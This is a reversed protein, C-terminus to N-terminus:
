SAVEQHAMAPVPFWGAIRRTAAFAAWAVTQLLPKDGPIQSRFGAIQHDDVQWPARASLLALKAAPRHTEILPATAEELWARSLPPTEGQWHALHDLVLTRVSEPVAEAGAKECANAFHALGAAVHPQGNAWAFERPLEAAQGFASKGPQIDARTMRPAIFAMFRQAIKRGWVTNMGRLPLPREDLFVSVMRNTYHYIAATGFIQPIDEKEFTPYALADSGPSLTSAAWNQAARVDPSMASDTGLNGRSAAAFMGSHVTECYPCGNLSSVMAAVAERKARGARGVVYAERAGHWYGALLEPDGAHITLPPALAFEENVQDFLSRLMPNQTNLEPRALHRVAQSAGQKFIVSEISKMLM